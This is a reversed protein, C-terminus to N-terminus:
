GTLAQEQSEKDRRERVRVIQGINYALIKETLEARVNENERRLLQGFQYGEKLTFVLSEIASRNARAARYEPRKWDEVPYSSSRVPVGEGQFRVQFKRKM